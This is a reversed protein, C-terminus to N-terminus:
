DEVAENFQSEPKGAEEAEIRAKVVRLEALLNDFFANTLDPCHKIAQEFVTAIGKPEGETKMYLLNSIAVKITETPGNKRTKPTKVTQM